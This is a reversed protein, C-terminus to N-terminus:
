VLKWKWIQFFFSFEFCNYIRRHKYRDGPALLNWQTITSPVTCRAGESWCNGCSSRYFRQCSSCRPRRFSWDSPIPGVELRALVFCSRWSLSIIIIIITIIIIIIIDFSSMYMSVYESVWESVWTLVVWISVWKSVWEWESVCVIWWEIVWFRVWESVWESVWEIVVWESM